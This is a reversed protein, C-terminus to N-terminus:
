LSGCVASSPSVAPYAATRRATSAVVCLRVRLSSASSQLSGCVVSSPSAVPYAAIQRARSVAVCLRVRLSIAPSAASVVSDASSVLERTEELRFCFLSPLLPLTSTSLVLGPSTKTYRPVSIGRAAALATSIRSGSSCTRFSFTACAANHCCCLSRLASLSFPAVYHWALCFVVGHLSAGSPILTAVSSLVTAPLLLCCQPLCYLLFCSISRLDTRLRRSFPFLRRLRPPAAVASHLRLISPTQSVIPRLPGPSHFDGMLLECYDKTAM